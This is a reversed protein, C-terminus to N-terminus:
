ITSYPPPIDDEQEWGEGTPPYLEETLFAVPAGEKGHEVVLPSIPAM